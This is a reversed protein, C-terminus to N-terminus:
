EEKEEFSGLRAYGFPDLKGLRTIYRSMFLTEDRNYFFHSYIDM